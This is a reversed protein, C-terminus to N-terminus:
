FYIYIYIYIINREQKSSHLHRNPDGISDLSTYFPVKQFSAAGVLYRGGLMGRVSFCYYKFLVTLPSVNGIFLTIMFGNSPLTGDFQFQLRHKFFFFFFFFVTFIALHLHEETLPSNALGTIGRDTSFQSIRHNSLNSSYNTFYLEKGVFRHKIAFSNDNVLLYLLTWPILVNCNCSFLSTSFPWLWYQVFVISYIVIVCTLFKSLAFTIVVLSLYLYYSVVM